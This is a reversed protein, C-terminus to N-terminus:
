LFCAEGTLLASQSCGVNLSAAAPLRLHLETEKKKKEEKEGDKLLPPVEASFYLYHLSFFFLNNVIRAYGM